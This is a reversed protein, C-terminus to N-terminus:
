SVDSGQEITKTISHIKTMGKGVIRMKMHDCRRPKIPVSFSRLLTNRINCIHLWEDSLDYQVYIDAVADVDMAMRLTIRSIYKMDPM